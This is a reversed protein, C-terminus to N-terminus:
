WFTHTTDREPVVPCRRLRLAVLQSSGSEAFLGWLDCPSSSLRLGGPQGQNRSVLTDLFSRPHLGRTHVRVHTHALAM